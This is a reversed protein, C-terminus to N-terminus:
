KKNNNNKNNNNNNVYLDEQIFEKELSFDHSSKLSIKGNWSKSFFESNEPSAM